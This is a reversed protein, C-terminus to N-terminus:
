LGRPLMQQCLLVASLMAVVDDSGAVVAVLQPVLKSGVASWLRIPKGLLHTPAHFLTM